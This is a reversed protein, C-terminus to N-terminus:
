ERTASDQPALAPIQDPAIIRPREPTGAALSGTTEPDRPPSSATSLNAGEAPKAGKSGSKSRTLAARSLQDAKQATVLIDSSSRAIMREAKQLAQAWSEGPKRCSCSPDYAKQYRLANALKMYPQGTESVAQEIGGDRPARFVGVEANPCLARCLDRTTARGQPENQLPFFYGDCARVCVLRSGGTAQLPPAETSELGSGDCTKAIAAELHRRRAQIAGPDSVAQQALAAENAQMGRIRQAIGGCEPPAQFFFSARDCGISRYYGILRAMEYRQRQAAAEYARLSAGARSLSALEARYRECSVQASAAGGLTALTLVFTTFRLASRRKM